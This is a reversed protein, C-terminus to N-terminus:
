SACRIGDENLPHFLHKSAFTSQRLSQQLFLRPKVIFRAKFPEARHSLRVRQYTIVGRSSGQLEHVIELQDLLQSVLQIGSQCLQKRVPHSQNLKIGLGASKLDNLDITADPDRTQVM